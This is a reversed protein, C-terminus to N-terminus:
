GRAKRNTLHSIWRPKHRIRYYVDRIGASIDKNQYLREAISKGVDDKWKAPSIESFAKTVNDNVFIDEASFDSLAAVIRDSFKAILEGRYVDDYSDLLKMASFICVIDEFCDADSTIGNKERCMEIFENVNFGKCGVTSALMFLAWEAPDSFSKEYWYNMRNYCERVEHMSFHRLDHDPKKDVAGAIAAADIVRLMHLINTFRLDINDYLRAITMISDASVSSSIDLLTDTDLGIIQRMMSYIGDYKSFDLADLRDLWADAREWTEDSDLACGTKNLDEAFCDVLIREIDDRIHKYTRILRLLLAQHQLDTNLIYGRIRDDPIIEYYLKYLEMIQAKGSEYQSMPKLWTLTSVWQAQAPIYGLHAIDFEMLRIFRTAISLDVASYLEPLRFFARNLNGGAASYFALMADRYKVLAPEADANDSLIVSRLRYCYKEIANRATKAGSHDANAMRGLLMECCLNETDATIGPQGLLGSYYTTTVSVKDWDGRESFFKHIDYVAEHANEEGNGALLCIAQIVTLVLEARPNKALEERIVSLCAQIRDCIFPFKSFNRAFSDAILKTITTALKFDIRRKLYVFVHWLMFCNEIVQFPMKDSVSEFNEILFRNFGALAETNDINDWVWDAYSRGEIDLNEHCGAGTLDVIPFKTDSLPPKGYCCVLHLSNIAGSTSGDIIGKWNSVASFKRKIFMPLLSLTALILMESSRGEPLIVVIKSGAKGCIAMCLSIYFNAFLEKNFGLEKIWDNKKFVFPSMYDAKKPDYKRSLVVPADPTVRACFSDYPEAAEPSFAKEPYQLFIENSSGRFILSFAYPVPGRGTIKDTVFWNRTVTTTDPLPHFVRLMSKGSNLPALSEPVAALMPNLRNYVIDDSQAGFIGDSMEVTFTGANQSKSGLEFWSRTYIHHGTM